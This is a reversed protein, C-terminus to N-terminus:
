SAALGLRIHWHLLPVQALKRRLCLIVDSFIDRSLIKSSLKELSSSPLSQIACCACRAMVDKADAGLGWLSCQLYANSPRSTSYCLICLFTTLCAQAGAPATCDVPKYSKALYHVDHHAASSLWIAFVLRTCDTFSWHWSSGHYATWAAVSVEHMLASICSM